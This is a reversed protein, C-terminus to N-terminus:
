LRPDPAPSLAQKIEGMSGGRGAIETYLGEDWTGM